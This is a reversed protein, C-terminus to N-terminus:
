LGWVKAWNRLRCVLKICLNVKGFFFTKSQLKKKQKKKTSLPPWPAPSNGKWNDTDTHSLIHFKHIHPNGKKQLFSKPSLHLAIHSANDQTAEDDLEVCAVGHSDKYINVLSCTLSRKINKQLNVHNVQTKHSHTTKEDLIRWPFCVGFFIDLVCIEFVSKKVM